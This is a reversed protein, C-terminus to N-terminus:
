SCRSNRSLLEIIRFRESARVLPDSITRLKNEISEIESEFSLDPQTLPYDVLNPQTNPYDVLGNKLISDDEVEAYSEIKSTKEIDTKVETSPRALDSSFAVPTRKKEYTTSPPDVSKAADILIDTNLMEEESETLQLITMDKVSDAIIQSESVQSIIADKALDAINKSICQSMSEISSEPVCTIEGDSPAEISLKERCILDLPSDECLVNTVLVESEPSRQLSGEVTGKLRQENSNINKFSIEEIAHLNDKAISTEGGEKQVDCEISEDLLSTESENSIYGDKNIKVDIEDDSDNIARMVEDHDDDSSPDADLEAYLPPLIKKGMCKEFNHLAPESTENSEVIMKIPSLEQDAITNENDEELKESFHLKQPDMNTTTCGVVIVPADPQCVSKSSQNQIVTKLTEVVMVAPISKANSELDNDASTEQVEDRVHVLEEITSPVISIVKESEDTLTEEIIYAADEVAVKEDLDAKKSDEPSSILKQNPDINEKNDNELPVVVGNEGSKMSQCDDLVGEEEAGPIEVSEPVPIAPTTIEKTIEIDEKKVEISEVCKSAVNEKEMGMESVPQLSDPEM